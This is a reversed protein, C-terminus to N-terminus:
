TGDQSGPLVPVAPQVVKSQKSLAAQENLAPMREIIECARLHKGPIDLDEKSVYETDWQLIAERQMVFLDRPQPKTLLDGLQYKTTVKTISVSGDRVHERFHHM